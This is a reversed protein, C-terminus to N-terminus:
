PASAETSAEASAKKTAATRTRPPSPSKVAEGSPSKAASKRAKTTPAPSDSPSDSPPEKSKPPRRQRELSRRSKEALEKLGVVKPAPAARSSSSSSSSSSSRARSSKRRRRNPNRVGEVAVSERAIRKLDPPGLVLSQEFKAELASAGMGIKGPSVFSVLSERSTSASSVSAKRDSDSSEEAEGDGEGKKTASVPWPKRLRQRRTSAARIANWDRSPVDGIARCATPTGVRKSSSNPPTRRFPSQAFVRERRMPSLQGSSDVVTWATCVFSRQTHKHGHNAELGKRPGREFQSLSSAGSEHRADVRRATSMRFMGHVSM